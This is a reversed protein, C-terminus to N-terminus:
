FGKKACKANYRHTGTRPSSGSFPRGEASPSAFTWRIEQAIEDTSKQSIDSLLIM